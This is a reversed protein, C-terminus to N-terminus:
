SGILTSVRVLAKISRRDDMARYGDAVHALDSEFDFVRGPEIRGALVDDLLEPLYARVPAPGGQIGVNRYFMTPVELEVGHPVGVYGVTSGPRAIALATTIAENTGVCELAADVGIGGTMARVAEVAEDGREAVVDTAGFERALAQRAPNRSLVIIRDAGLRKAAVVACLGVAGDGVVAVTDGREVGASFAAHHGTGIVDSLTLFSRVMLEDHGGGPVTVLTGDAKPIRIREAQGGLGDGNGFFGGDLCATQVGARCNPCTGDSWAFPAIVLDGERVRTVASGVAEVVGILEHGIGTQGHETLGRWYWLDSGCVCALVIRVVADTQEEVRPDPRDEVRVDRPGRYIAAKV